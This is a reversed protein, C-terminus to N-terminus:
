ALGGSGPAAAAAAAAAATAADPSLPAGCGTGFGVLAITSGGPGSLMRESSPPRERACDAPENRAGTRASIEAQNETLLRLVGVGVTGLGAIGIRLEGSGLGKAM